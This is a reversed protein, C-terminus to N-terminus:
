PKVVICGVRDAALAACLQDAAAKDALPGARLRYYIGKDGLDAKTVSPTLSAFLDQHKGSIRKWESQAAEETPVSVLQIQFAGPNSAGSNSAVTPAAPTVAATQVELKPEPAKPAPPKTVAPASAKAPAPEPAKGTAAAVAAALAAADSSSAAPKPAEKSAQPPVENAEKVISEMTKEAPKEPAKEAVKPEPAKAAPEPAKAVEKVPAKPPEKPEEPPPLLNEERKPAAGKAVRDYVLKDQNEVQMGGPSDPKLKYPTAEAKITQVQGDPLEAGGPGKFAYWGVGAVLVVGLAVGVMLSMSLGGSRGSREDRDDFVEDTFPTARLTDGGKVGFPDADRKVDERRLSPGDGDRDYLGM